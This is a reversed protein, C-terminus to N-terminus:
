DHLCLHRIDELSLLEVIKKIAPILRSQEMSLNIRFYYHSTSKLLYRDHPITLVNIQEILTRAIDLNNNSNLKNFPIGMLCFYGSSCDSLIYDSCILMTQILEFNKKAYSINEKITNLVYARNKRDYLQTLLTLQSYVLSGLTHVSAKEFFDINEENGYVICNKIGNLFLRKSISETVIINSYINFLNLIDYNVINLTDIDWDMGGYMFDIYLIIEHNKCINVIKQYIDKTIKVGSGFLPDNMILLNVENKVISRELEEFDIHLKGEKMGEVYYTEAKLDTLVKIYTFYIPAIFLVKLKKKIRFLNLLLYSTSTGNSSIAFSFNRKKIKDIEFVEKALWQKTELMEDMFYYNNQHSSVNKAVANQIIEPPFNLNDNEKNWDSLFCTDTNLKHLLSEINTDHYIPVRM